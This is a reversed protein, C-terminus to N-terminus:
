EHSAEAHPEVLVRWDHEAFDAVFDCSVEAWPSSANWGEIEYDITPLTACFIINDTEGERVVYCGTFDAWEQMTRKKM